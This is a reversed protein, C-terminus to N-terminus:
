VRKKRAFILLGSVGTLLLSLVGPEPVSQSAAPEPSQAIEGDPAPPTYALGGSSIDPTGLTVVGGNGITLSALRQSAHFNVTAIGAAPTVNVSSAGTGVATELDVTGAQALLSTYTQTGSLRLTGAGAKVISGNFVAAPVDLEIAGAADAVSITRAAGGLDIRGTISAGGTAAVNGGLILRGTPKSSIAGGTMTVGSVKLSGSDIRVAGSGLTLAGITEVVGAGLGLSAGTNITVTSTNSIQEDFGVGVNGGIVLAGPIATAGGTKGLTLRGSVTTVGTYTNSADGTLVLSNAGIAALGGGGTIAGGLVIFDTAADVTLTHGGNDISGNVSFSGTSTTRFTQPTALVINNEITQVSDDNHVIGGTGITLPNGQILFGGAGASFVLSQISWNLNANPNLGTTGAFFLAASGDNPPAVNGAWNIGATWNSDTIDDGDWTFNTAHSQRPVVAALGIAASLIRIVANM